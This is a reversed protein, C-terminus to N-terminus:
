DDAAVTGTWNAETATAEHDIGAAPEDTPASEDTAAERDDAEGSPPATYMIGRSHSRYSM